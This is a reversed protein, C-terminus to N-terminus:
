YNSQMILETRSFYSKNILIIKLRWNAKLQVEEFDTLCIEDYTLLCM